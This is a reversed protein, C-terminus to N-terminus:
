HEPRPKKKTKRKQTHTFLQIIPHQRKWGLSVEEESSCVLSMLIVNHIGAYNSCKYPTCHHETASSSHIFNLVIIVDAGV